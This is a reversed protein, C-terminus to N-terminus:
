RQSKQKRIEELIEDRLKREQKEIERARQSRIYRLEFDIPPSAPIATTLLEDKVAESFPITTYENVVSVAWNRLPSNEKSPQERLISIALEVYRARIERDKSTESYTNSIWAAAIPVAVAALAAVAAAGAKVREVWPTHKTSVNM